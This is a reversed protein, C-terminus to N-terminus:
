KLFPFMKSLSAPITEMGSLVLGIILLVYGIWQISNMKTKFFVFSIATVLLINSVQWIINALSFSGKFRNLFIYFLYAVLMYCLMGIILQLRENKLIWMSKHTSANKLFTEALAETCILAILIIIDFLGLQNFASM